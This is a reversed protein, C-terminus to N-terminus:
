WNFLFRAKGGFGGLQSGAFDVPRFYMLGVSAGLRFQFIAEANAEIAVSNGESGAIFGQVIGGVRYIPDNLNPENIQYQGLAGVFAGAIANEGLKIFSEGHLGYLMRKDEGFKEYIRGGIQIGTLAGATPSDYPIVGMGVTLQYGYYPKQQIKRVLETYAEERTQLREGSRLVAATTADSMYTESWLVKSDTARYIQVSMSVTNAGPDYALYVDLFAIVGLKKAVQALEEQTTHGLSVVWEEGDVQTTLAGCSICRKVNIRAHRAISNVLQSHLWDAYSASLNPTTAVGRIAMPSIAAMNLGKLDATLDDVMEQVVQNITIKTNSSGVYDRMRQNAESQSLPEVEQAKPEDGVEAGDPADEEAMGPADDDAFIDPEQAQALSPPVGVIVLALALTVAARILAWLGNHRIM